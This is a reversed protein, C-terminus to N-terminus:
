KKSRIADDITTIIEKLPIRYAEYQRTQEPTLKQWKYSRSFIYYSDLAGVFCIKGNGKPVIKGYYTKCNYFNYIHGGVFYGKKNEKYGYGFVNGVSQRKRLDPNKNCSDFIPEAELNKLGYIYYKGNYEFIEVVSRGGETGKHTLYLGSIDIACIIDSLGIWIVCAIKYIFHM